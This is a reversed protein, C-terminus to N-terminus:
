ASLREDGPLLGDLDDVAARFVAEDVRPMVHDFYAAALAEYPIAEDAAERAQAELAVLQARFWERREADPVEAALRQRLAVAENALTAPSPLAEMDAQAKLDAPGYYADVLGPRHQDLRLALLLYARAIPDAQPVTRVGGVAPVRDIM